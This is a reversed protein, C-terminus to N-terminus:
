HQTSEPASVTSAEPQGDQAARLMVITVNRLKPDDVFGDIFKRLEADELLKRIPDM